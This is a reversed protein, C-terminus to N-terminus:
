RMARRSLYTLVAVSFTGLSDLLAFLALLILTFLNAILRPLDKHRPVPGVVPVRPVALGL